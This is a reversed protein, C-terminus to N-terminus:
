IRFTKGNFCFFFLVSISFHCHSPLWNRWRGFHLPASLATTYSEFCSLRCAQEPLNGGDTSLSRIYITHKSPNGTPRSTLTGVLGFLARRECEEQLLAGRGWAGKWWSWKGEPGGLVGGETRWPGVVWLQWRGAGVVGRVCDVMEGRDLLDETCIGIQRGRLLM